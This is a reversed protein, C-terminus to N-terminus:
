VPAQKDVSPQDDKAPEQIKDPAQEVMNELGSIRTTLDKEIDDFNIEREIDRKTDIVFRRIRASWRAVEKILGPLKDPGVVLLAVIAIIMIEWFGIDFM